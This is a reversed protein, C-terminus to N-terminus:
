GNGHLHTLLCDSLEDELNYLAAGDRVYSINSEQQGDTVDSGRRIM